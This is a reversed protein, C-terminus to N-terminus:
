RNDPASTKLALAHIRSSLEDSLIENVLRHQDIRTLGRFKESVVKLHFHSEGSGDDGAHGAHQASQNELILVEPMLSKQIKEKIIDEISM